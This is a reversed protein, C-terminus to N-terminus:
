ASYRDESKYVFVKGDFLECLDDLLQKSKIDTCCFIDVFINKQLHWSSLVCHSEALILSLTWGYPWFNKFQTGVVASVNRTIISKIEQIGNDDLAAPLSNCEVLQIYSNKGIYVAQSDVIRLVCVESKDPSRALLIDNEIMNDAPIEELYEIRSHKGTNNALLTPITTATLRINLELVSVKSGDVMVDIGFFGEYNCLFGDVRECAIQISSVIDASIENIDLLRAGVYMTGDIYQEAYGFLTYSGGTKYIQVSQAVGSAVNEYYWTVDSNLILDTKQQIKDLESSVNLVSFGGAGISSKIYGSKLAMAKDLDAQNKIEFFDPSVDGLLRKQSLKNNYRLFDAYDYNVALGLPEARKDIAPHPVGTWVRSIGEPLNKARDIISKSPHSAPSAVLLRGDMDNKEIDYSNVVYIGGSVDSNTSSLWQSLNEYIFMSNIEHTLTEGTARFDVVYLTDDRNLEKISDVTLKAISFKPTTNMFIIM